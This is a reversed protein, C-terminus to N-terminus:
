GFENIGFFTISSFCIKTYKQGTSYMALDFSSHPSFCYRSAQRTLERTEDEEHSSHARSKITTRPHYCGDSTSPSRPQSPHLRPFKTPLYKEPNWAKKSFSEEHPNRYALLTSLSLPRASGSIFHLATTHGVSIMTFFRPWFDTVGVPNSGAVCAHFDPANDMWSSQCSSRFMLISNRERVGSATFANERM